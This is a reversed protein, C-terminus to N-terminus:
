KEKKNLDLILSAVASMALTDKGYMAVTLDIDKFTLVTSFVAQHQAVENTTKIVEAVLETNM